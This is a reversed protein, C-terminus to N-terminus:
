PVDVLYGCVIVEVARTGVTTSRRVSWFLTSGPDAYLTMSQTVGPFAVGDPTVSPLAYPSRSGGSLPLISTRYVEGTAAQVVYESVTQIVLRKGSPVVIDINGNATDLAGTFNGAPIVYRTAAQFPQRAANDADHNQVNLSSNAVTVPVPGGVSHAPRMSVLGVAGLLAVIGIGALLRPTLSRLTHM